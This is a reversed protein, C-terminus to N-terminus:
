FSVSTVKNYITFSKKQTVGSYTGDIYLGNTETGTSSGGTYIYYTSGSKLDPSAFIMSYYSRVPKFTVIDNGYADQIHFLTYAAVSSTTTAKISYQSSTSSPAQTMFSNTGSMVLLGGSINCTGNYDMGVEPQSKPGHVIITDGTIVINGNSDIGDGRSVNVSVNGGNLYQCSGDNGERDVGKTSNFGDDSAMIGVNGNNVTIYPSEIGELSEVISVDGNNITISTDSKLSDDSSSITIIGNNITIAGDSKVAKATAYDTNMWGGSVFFKTGTTTVSLIPSNIEDGITLNGGASIGKGASGSSLTTVSGGLIIIDGDSTICTANYSDTAGTSNKYTSGAGSTTININGYTINIDQDSSIGKGAIGTSFIYINTGGITIDRDCKIGTCYVPNYGSGSQELVVGGSTNININGGSLIMNKASKIGKSKNETVVIQISGGSVTLTGDYSIDEEGVSIGNDCETISIDGGNIELASGSYIGEDGSALTIYGGNITVSDNSHIADDSSDIDINGGDIAVNVGAKIGKTSDSSGATYTSGGGSSITIDGGSILVRTKAQIGDAGAAIYFTGGYISIYGLEVDEDNNSQMGDGGAIVTVTGDNVTISDRGRIGDNVANVIISGGTIELDDKSTIGDNYNAHVTLSGSGRITLDDRSFVAANPEDSNPDEFIYFDGDTISNETGEALTIVTDKANIIYIPASTSYTIDAGNLVLDVTEKDQTDVIIRGDDLTGSINFIGSSTITINQGDFIAGSGNLIISNGQLTINTMDSGPVAVPMGLLLTKMESIYSMDSIGSGPNSLGSISIIYDIGPSISFNNGGPKDWFVYTSEYKGFSANYSKISNIGAV